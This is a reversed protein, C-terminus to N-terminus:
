FGIQHDSVETKIGNGSDIVEDCTEKNVELSFESRKVCQDAHKNNRKQKRKVRMKYASYSIANDASSPKGTFPDVKSRNKFASYSIANDAKSPKGTLPNVKKRDKFKSYSIANSAESTEGTIPDVKRRM